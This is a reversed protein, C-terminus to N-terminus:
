DVIGRVVRCLDFLELRRGIDNKNVVVIREGPVDILVQGEFTSGDRDVAIVLNRQLLQNGLLGRLQHDTRARAMRVSICTDALGRNLMETPLYRHKPNAHTMLANDRHKTALDVNRTFDQVSFSRDQLVISLSHVLSQRSSQIYCSVM